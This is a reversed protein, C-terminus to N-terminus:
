DVVLLDNFRGVFKTHGHDECTDAMETVSGWGEVVGNGGCQAERRLSSRCHWSISMCPPLPPSM